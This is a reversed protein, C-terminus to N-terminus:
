REISLRVELGSGCNCGRQFVLTAVLDRHREYVTCHKRGASHSVSAFFPRQSPMSDSLSLDEASADLGLVGM